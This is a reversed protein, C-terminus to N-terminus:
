TKWSAGCLQEQEWRQDVSAQKSNQSQQALQQQRRALQELKQMADDVAQQQKDGSSSQQSEYQNKETDLELDLLNPWIAAPTLDAAEAAM